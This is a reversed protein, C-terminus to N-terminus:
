EVLTMGFPQKSLKQGYTSRMYEMFKRNMRLVVLMELEEDSMLTHADTMVDKAISNVRECFSQSPLFGISGKSGAAMLPIHGFKSRDPDNKIMCKYVRSPNLPMLDEFIDLSPPPEAAAAAAAAPGGEEEGGEAPPPRGGGEEEGGAPEAFVEEPYFTRWPITVKRFNKLAAQALLKIADDTIEEAAYQCM